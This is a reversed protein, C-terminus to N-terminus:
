SGGAKAGSGVAWRATAAGAAKDHDPPKAGSANKADSDKESLAAAAVIAKEVLMIHPRERIM